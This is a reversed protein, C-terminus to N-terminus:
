KINQEFGAIRDQSIRCLFLIGFYLYDKEQSGARKASQAASKQLNCHPRECGRGKRLESCAVVAIDVQGVVRHAHALRVVGALVMEAVHDLVVM